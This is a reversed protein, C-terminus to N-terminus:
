PLGFWRYKHGGAELKESIESLTITNMSDYAWHHDAYQDFGCNTSKVYTNHVSNVYTELDLVTFTQGATAPRNVFQIQADAYTLKVVAFETGDTSTTRSLVTGGIVNTYFDVMEDIMTTARSVKVITDQSTSPQTWSSFDLRPEDVLTYEWTDLGSDSDTIFEVFFGPCAMTMVSYFTDGSNEFSMKIMSHGADNLKSVYASLSNTWVGLHSDM